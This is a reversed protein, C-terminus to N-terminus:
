TARKRGAARSAQLLPITFSAVTGRKGDARNNVCIRGGHAELISRSIALGMGLGHAKTTFFPEFMRKIAATSVGTGTDRVIVQAMEEAASVKLEIEHADGAAERIADIVVNAWFRSGDKRVRWNETEFRGERVATELAHQPAGAAGAPQARWVGRRHCRGRRRDHTFSVASFVDEVGRHASRGGYKQYVGQREAAHQPGARAAM